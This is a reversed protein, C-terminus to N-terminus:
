SDSPRRSRRGKQGRSESSSRPPRTRTRLRGARPAATRTVAEVNTRVGAITGALADRVARGAAASVRDAGEIAGQAADTALRGTDGGTTRAAAITGEVARRAVDAVDGGVEAATKV